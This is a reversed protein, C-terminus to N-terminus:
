WQPNLDRWGCWWGYCLPLAGLKYRALGLDPRSAPEIGAPHVMTSSAFPQARRSHVAPLHTRTGGDVGSPSTNHSCEPTPLRLDQNSELRGSWRSYDPYFLLGDHVSDCVLNKRPCGDHFGLGFFLDAVDRGQRENILMHSHHGVRM